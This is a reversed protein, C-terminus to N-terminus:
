LRAVIRHGRNGGVGDYGLVRSKIIVVINWTDSNPAARDLCAPAKESKLLTQHHLVRKTGFFWPNSEKPPVIGLNTGTPVILRGTTADVATFPIFWYIELPPEESSM